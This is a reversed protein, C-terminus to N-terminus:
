KSLAKDVRQLFESISVESKVMYDKAGSKMAKQMIASDSVNTLMVIKINKTRTDRQLIDLLHLGDIKPMLVDLVVLDPQKELVKKLALEEDNICDVDYGACKLTDTYISCIDKSIDIIMIKTM